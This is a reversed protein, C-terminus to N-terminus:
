LALYTYLGMVGLLVLGALRLFWTAGRKSAPELRVYAAYGSASLLISAPASALRGRLPDGAFSIQPASLMILHGLVIGLLLWADARRRHYWFGLGAFPLALYWFLGHLSDRLGSFSVNALIHTPLPTFLQRGIALVRGSLSRGFPDILRASVGSFSTMKNQARETVAYQGEWRQAWTQQYQPLFYLPLSVLSLVLTILAVGLRKRRASIFIHYAAGAALFALGQASRTVVLGLASVAFVAARTTWPRRSVLSWLLGAGLLVIYVDRMQVASYVILDPHLVALILAMRAVDKRQFVALATKYVVVLVLAGIVCSFLRGVVTHDGLITYLVGLVAPYGNRWELATGAFMQEKFLIASGQFTGEDDMIYIPWTFLAYCVRIVYGSFIWGRAWADGKLRFLDLAYLSVVLTLSLLGVAAVQSSWEVKAAIAYSAFVSGFLAALAPFVFRTPGFSTHIPRSSNIHM